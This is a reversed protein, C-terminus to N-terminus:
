RVLGLVVPTVVVTIPKLSKVLLVSRVNMLSLPVRNETPTVPASKVAMRTYRLMVLAIM